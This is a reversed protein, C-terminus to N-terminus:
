HRDPVRIQGPLVSIQCRVGILIPPALLPMDRLHIPQHALQLMDRLHILQHALLLMDRLHILQRALLPM